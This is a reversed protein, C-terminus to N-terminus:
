AAAGLCGRRERRGGGLAEAQAEVGGRMLKRQGVVLLIRVIRLALPILPEIRNAIPIPM